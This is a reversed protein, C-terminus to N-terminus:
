PFSAAKQKLYVGQEALDMYNSRMVEYPGHQCEKITLFDSLHFQLEAIHQLGEAKFLVNVHVNPPQTFHEERFKNKVRVVEFNPHRAVNALFAVLLLPDRFELSARMFDCLSTPFQREERLKAQARELGKPPGFSVCCRLKAPWFLLYNTIRRNDSTAIAEAEARHGDGSEILGADRLAKLVLPWTIETKGDDLSENFQSVLTKLTARFPEELLRAQISLGVLTPLPWQQVTKSNKESILRLIEWRRGLAAYKRQCTGMLRTLRTNELKARAQMQEFLEECRPANSDCYAICLERELAKMTKIYEESPQINRTAGEAARFTRLIMRQQTLEAEKEVVELFEKAEKSEDV